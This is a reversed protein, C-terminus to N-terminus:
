HVVTKYIKKILSKQNTKKKKGFLIALVEMICEILYFCVTSVSDLGNALSEKILQFQVNLVATSRPVYFGLRGFFYQFLDPSLSSWVKCHLFM